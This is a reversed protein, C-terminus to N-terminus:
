RRDLTAWFALASANFREAQEVQPAHGCDDFIQVEVNPLLRWLVEAHAVKVFRDDRGWVVLAPTLLTPLVRHLAEVHAPKFGGLDVFSRLTKLFAQHAGPTSALRVKTNVLDDTVFAKPNAFAKQWLLRMGLRNARSVWEGIVPVTAVRFELLTGRRNVGAPDALVMSAVRASAQQACALAISGGLSNGALHAREIGLASMFALTFQALRPITYTEGSPKDTLGFGLLDFAYVRHRKALAAINREWELVSCGIGHLLVVASGQTGVQWYRTNHGEVQLYHDQHTTM